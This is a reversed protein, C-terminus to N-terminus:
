NPHDRESISRQSKFQLIACNLFDTPNQISRFVKFVLYKSYPFNSRFSKPGKAVAPAETIPPQLQSTPLAKRGSHGRIVSSTLLHSSAGGHVQQFKKLHRARTYSQCSCTNKNVYVQFTESRNVYTHLYHLIIGQM